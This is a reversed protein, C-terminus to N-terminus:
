RSRDIKFIIEAHSNMVSDDARMARLRPLMPKAVAGLTPLDWLVMHNQEAAKFIADVWAPNLKGDYRMLTLYILIRVTDGSTSKLIEELRERVGPVVRNCNVLVRAAFNQHMWNDSNLYKKLEPLAQPHEPNLELLASMTYLACQPFKGLQGELTRLVEAGADADLRTISEALDARIESNLIARPHDRFVKLLLPLMAKTPGPKEKCYNVLLRHYYEDGNPSTTVKLFDLFLKNLKEEVPGRKEPDIAAIVPALRLLDAFGVAKEAQELLTPVLDRAAPGILVLARDLYLMASPDQKLRAQIAPVLAAGAPGFEQLVRQLHNSRLAERDAILPTVFDAAEARREPHLLALNAALIRVDRSLEKEKKLRDLMEGLAKPEPQMAVLTRHILDMRAADPKGETQAFVELAAPRANIGQRLFTRLVVESLAQEKLLPTIRPLLKKFQEAPTWRAVAVAVRRQFAEESQLNKVILDDFAPTFPELPPYLFRPVTKTETFVMEGIDKGVRKAQPALALLLQYTEGGTNPDKLRAMLAPTLKESQDGLSSLLSYVTARNEYATSKLGEELVPLVEDVQKPALRLYPPVAAIRYNIDPHKLTRQFVERARPNPPEQQCLVRTARNSAEPTKSDALQLIADKAAEQKEPVALLGIAAEVQCRPDADKLYPVLIEGRSATVFTQPIGALLTVREQGKSDEIWKGYHPIAEKGLNQLLFYIQRGFQPDKRVAGLVTFLHEDAPKRGQLFQSVQYKQQLAMSAFDNALTTAADKGNGQVKWLTLAVRLRTAVDPDKLLPRLLPAAERGEEGIRDLVQIAEDRELAQKSQLRELWHSLPKGNFEKTSEQGPSATAVLLMALLVGSLM